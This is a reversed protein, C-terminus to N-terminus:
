ASATLSVLGRFGSSDNAASNERYCKFVFAGCLCLSAATASALVAVHVCAVAASCHYSHTTGLRVNSTDCTHIHLIITAVCLRV